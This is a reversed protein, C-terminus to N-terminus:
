VVTLKRDISTLLEYGDKTIVTMDEIRVGGFGELYLGPEVTIVMSAELSSTSEVSLTPQEHVELGVGHGLNHTFFQEVGKQQLYQHVEAAVEKAEVKPKIKALAKKQAELVTQYLQKQEDTAKGLVLTRTIDSCYGAVYAGFDILVFDGKKLRYNGPTHHPLASNLGAAVITEFSPSTAGKKQLRYNLELAVEKETVGPKILELVDEWVAQAVQCASKLSKLEAAEKCQRLNAVFPKTPLFTVLRLEKKLKEVQNYSLTDGEFYVTQLNLKQCVEKLLPTLKAKVLKLEAKVKAQKAALFYRGDAFLILKNATILLVGNFHSDFLTPQNLLYRINALNSILFAAEPQLHQRLKSIRRSM